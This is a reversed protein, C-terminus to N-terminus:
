VGELEKLDALLGRETPQWHLRQRTLASSAPADRDIFHALWGFHAAAEEPAISVVPLKLRQGLVEAIDRFTVGEDAVAHYKAGREAKELVLRYLRATDLLHAAPWRNHGDGVYPCVGKDRAIAIAWTILGQRTTDHIQSLRVVSVNAGGAAIAAAAEESAARPILASSAADDEETAPRGPVNNV